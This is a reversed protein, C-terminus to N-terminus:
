DGYVVRDIREIASIHGNKIYLRQKTKMHTHTRKDFYNSGKFSNVTNKFIVAVKLNPSMKFKRGAYVTLSVSAWVISLFGCM